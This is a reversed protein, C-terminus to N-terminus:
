LRVGLSSRLKSLGREAHNQVTTKALGLLDAVDALTWEFAYVLTVAVRQREPLGALATVLGPEVWPLRSEEVLPLATRRRRRARRGRDRGVVYLYGVPNEMASVRAWNEWGFALADVTAERGLESGLCASLADHLRPEADEFFVEFSSATIAGGLDRMV